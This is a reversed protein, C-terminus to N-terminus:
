TTTPRTIRATGPKQKLKDLAEKYEDMFTKMREEVKADIIKEIAERWEAPITDMPNNPDM